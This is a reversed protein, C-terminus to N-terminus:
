DELPSNADDGHRDRRKTMRQWQEYVLQCTSCRRQGSLAFERHASEGCEFFVSRQLGSKAIEIRQPFQLRRRHRGGTIADMINFVENIGKCRPYCSCAPAYYCFDAYRNQVAVLRWPSRCRPCAGGSYERDILQLYEAPLNAESAVAVEHAHQADIKPQDIFGVVDPLSNSM